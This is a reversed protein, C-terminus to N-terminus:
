RRAEGDQAPSVEVEDALREIDERRGTALGRRAVNLAAAAVGLRLAAALDNGRLMGAVIGATLADGGGHFDVPEVRPGTVVLTGGDRTSALVPRDERSVVVTRAGEGHLASLASWVDADATSRARGDKVLEEDSVKLLDLGGALASVLPEGSLDAVLIKGNARLDGALRRYFDAPLTVSGSPGGLVCLRATLGTSLAAGYLADVDHRSLAVPPMEAIVERHGSRRDHVYAVNDANVTLANLAISERDILTRLVHGTEGGFAACMQVPMDLATMMRALWFGQGGAHLHIDPAGAHDELTITLIPMPALVFADRKGGTRDM